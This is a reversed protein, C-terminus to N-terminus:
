IFLILFFYKLLLLDTTALPQSLSFFNVASPVFSSEPAISSNQMKYAITSDSYANTVVGLANWKRFPDVGSYPFLIKILPFSVFFDISGSIIFFGPLAERAKSLNEHNATDWDREDGEAGFAVPPLPMEQRHPSPTWSEPESSRKDPSIYGFHFSGM